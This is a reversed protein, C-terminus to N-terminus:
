LLEIIPGESLLGGSLLLEAHSLEVRIRFSDPHQICFFDSQLCATFVSLHEWSWMNLVKYLQSNLLSNFTMLSQGPRLVGWHRTM